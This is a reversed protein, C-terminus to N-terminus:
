GHINFLSTVLIECMGDVVIHCTVNYQQSLLQLELMDCTLYM